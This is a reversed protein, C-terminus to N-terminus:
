KTNYVSSTLEISIPLNQLYYLIHKRISLQLLADAAM